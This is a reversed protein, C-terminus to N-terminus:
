EATGPVCGLVQERCCVAVQAVLFGPASPRPSPSRRQANAGQLWPLTAMLVGHLRTRFFIRVIPAFRSLKLKLALM